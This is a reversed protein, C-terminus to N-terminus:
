LGGLWFLGYIPSASDMLEGLFSQIGGMTFVVFFESVFGYSQRLLKVIGTYENQDFKQKDDENILPDDELDPLSDGGGTDDMKDWLTGTFSLWQKQWWDWFGSETYIYTYDDKPTTGQMDWYDQLTFVDFSGTPIWRSGTWIRGDVALWAYGSYQQLSTIRSNEVLAWVQGKQPYSPRVGGIQWESIPTNSKVALVPSAKLEGSAYVASHWTFEYGPTTGEILEMYAITAEGSRPVFYFMPPCLLSFSARVESDNYVSRFSYIMSSASFESAGGTVLNLGTCYIDFSTFSHDSYYLVGSKGSSTDTNFVLYSSNGETDVVTLCWSKAETSSSPIVPSFQSFSSNLVGIESGEFSICLGLANLPIDAIRGFYTFKGATRDILVSSTPSYGGSAKVSIGGEIESVEASRQFTYLGYQSFSDKLYTTASAQTVSTSALVSGTPDFDTVSFSDPDSFDFPLLNDEAPTITWYEDAIPVEGDPLILTLNTDYPVASPTYDDGDSYLAAKTVRLEDLKKYTQQDTGFVFCIVDGYSGLLSVSGCCIGNVYYYLFDGERVLAIECWNGVPVACLSGSNMDYLDVGDIYLVPCSGLSVSSDMVPADTYSQYYRFQITFDASLDSSPLYIDFAHDQEDLYLSGNFTGEDMYTISAGEVWDFESCYSWYSDDDLNGDFHYLARMNIDDASRAYNIVDVFALSLQELEEATLDASSRGDPLEYYFQYPDEYEETQGIYTISTHTIYYNYEYNYTITNFSNNFSDYTYQDHSDVYYTQTSEDFVLDDIYYMTGDPFWVVGNEIDVLQGNNTTTQDEDTYYDNPTGIATSDPDIVNVFPYGHPDCLYLYGGSVPNTTTIVYYKDHPLVIGEYYAAMDDLVSKTVFHRNTQTLFADEYPLWQIGTTDDPSPSGDSAKPPEYYPFYGASDVIWLKTQVDRLRYVGYNSDYKVEARIFWGEFGTSWGLFSLSTSTYSIWYVEAQYLYQQSCLGVGIRHVVDDFYSWLLNGGLAEVWKKLWGTKNNAYWTNWASISAGDRILYDSNPSGSSSPSESSSGSSAFAVSPVVLSIVIAFVLLYSIIKKVSKLLDGGLLYVFPFM